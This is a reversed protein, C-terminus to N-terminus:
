DPPLSGRPANRRVLRARLGGYATGVLVVGGLVALVLVGLAVGAALALAGLVARQWPKTFSLGQRLGM